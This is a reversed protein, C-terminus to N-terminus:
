RVDTGLPPLATTVLVRRGPLDIRALQKNGERRYIVLLTQPDRLTAGYLDTVNTILVTYGVGSVDSAALTVGDDWDLREDGNQDAAVVGYLFWAVPAQEDEPTSFGRRFLVRQDNTPLLQVFTEDRRDLYVYNAAEDSSYSSSSLSFGGRPQM